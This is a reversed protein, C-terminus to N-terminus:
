EQKLVRKISAIVRDEDFPKMIFDEAGLKLAEIVLDQQGIATIMLIKSNINLKKIEKVAEIGNMEPMTVDMTIINPNLKEALEIAEAGTSAEGIVTYDSNSEIINKLMKRIFAADDVILFTVTSM